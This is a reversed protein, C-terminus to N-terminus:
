KGNVKKTNFDEIELLTDELSGLTQPKRVNARETEEAIVIRNNGTKLEDSLVLGCKMMTDVIKCLEHPKLTNNKLAGTLRGMALPLGEQWIMENVTKKAVFDNLETIAVQEQVKTLANSEDCLHEGWKQICNELDSDDVLQHMYKSHEMIQTLTVYIGDAIMRNMVVIEAVGAILGGNYLNAKPSNCVPCIKKHKQLEESTVTRM